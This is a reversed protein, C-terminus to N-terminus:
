LTLRRLHIYNCALWMDRWWEYNFQLPGVLYQGKNCGLEKRYSLTQDDFLVFILLYRYIIKKVLYIIQYNVFNVYSYLSILVIYLVTNKKKWFSCIIDVETKYLFFCLGQKKSLVCSWSRVVHKWKDGINWM